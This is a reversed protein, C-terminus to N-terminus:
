PLINNSLHLLWSALSDTIALNGTIHSISNLAQRIDKFLSSLTLVKADVIVYLIVTYLARHLTQLAAKSHFAVACRPNHLKM